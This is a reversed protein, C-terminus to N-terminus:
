HWSGAQPSAQSPSPAAPPRAAAGRTPLSALLRILVGHDVPKVLHTDFGADLSRQRDEDQGWGTLAVIVLEDGGPRQRLRQCVEYGNLKPLGIDLLVADPRVREVAELAEVGDHAKHTEHGVEELLMALSDAGDYNDDVILVRHGVSTTPESEGAQAITASADELAALRVEFESGHGLGESRAAVTGGHMEVVAKVLTLGIGLGDRTRELSTDAQTFMTFLHPLQEAAIGIGDDRVRVVAQAGEHSVTLGIHGRPDTFKCANNLLNGIVQALRAPDASLYVPQTPLKV